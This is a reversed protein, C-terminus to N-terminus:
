TLGFWILVNGPHQPACYSECPQCTELVPLAACRSAPAKRSISCTRAMVRSGGCCLWLGRAPGPVHWGGHPRCCLDVLFPSLGLTLSVLLQARVCSHLLCRQSLVDGGPSATRQWPWMRVVPFDLSSSEKISFPRWSPVGRHHYFKETNLIM